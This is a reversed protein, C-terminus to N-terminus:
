KFFELCLSGKNGGSRRLPCGMGGRREAKTATMCSCVVVFARHEMHMPSKSSHRMMIRFLIFGDRDVPLREPDEIFGFNLECTRWWSQGSVTPRPRRVEGHCGMGEGAQVSVVAQDRGGPDEAQYDLGVFILTLLAVIPMLVSNSIFDFSDLLTSGDGLPQIFSLGNYGANVFCGVGVVWIIVAILSTRRNWGLGDCIISVLTEILSIASTLAAFLVLLFFITGVVTAVGGMQEFVQPLIIFMLSPGSHQAVADASGLTIFAAPVIMMGALLSVVLDSGGIWSM